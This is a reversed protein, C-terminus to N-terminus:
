YFPFVQQRVMAEQGRRRGYGDFVSDQAVMPWVRGGRLRGMRFDGRALSCGALSCGALSYGALSIRWMGVAGGCRTAPDVNTELRSRGSIQLSGEFCPRTGPCQMCPVGILIWFALFLDIM